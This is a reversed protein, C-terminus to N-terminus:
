RDKCADEYLSLSFVRAECAHKGGKTVCSRKSGGLPLPTHCTRRGGNRCHENGVSCGQDRRVRLEALEGAPPDAYWGLHPRSSRDTGIQLVLHPHNLLVPFFPYLGVVGPAPPEFADPILPRCRAAAAGVQSEMSTEMVLLAIQKALSPWDVWLNGIKGTCKLQLMKQKAGDGGQAKLVGLDELSRLPIGLTLDAQSTYPDIDGWIAIHVGPSGQTARSSPPPSASRLPCSHLPSFTPSSTHAPLSSGHLAIPAELSLAFDTTSTRLSSM